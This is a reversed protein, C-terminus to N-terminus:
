YSWLRRFEVELSDNIKEDTLLPEGQCGAARHGIRGSSTTVMDMGHITQAITLVGSAAPANGKVWQDVVASAAAPTILGCRLSRLLFGVVEKTLEPPDTLEPHDM